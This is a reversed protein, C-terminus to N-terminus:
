WRQCWVLVLWCDACSSTFASFVGRVIFPQLSTVESALLPNLSRLHMLPGGKSIHWIHASEIRVHCAGAKRAQYPEM